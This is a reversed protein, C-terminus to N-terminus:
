QRGRRFFPGGPRRHPGGDNAAVEAADILALFASEADPAGARTLLGEPTADALIRGEHLLLLRDCRTAEDMVHSSVLVCRGGDALAHFLAWLDRRLVPDLGVTPEDLVLIDPEGVIV